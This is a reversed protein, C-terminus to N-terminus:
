TRGCTNVGSVRSSSSDARPRRMPGSATALSADDDVIAATNEGNAENESDSEEEEDDEEDDATGDDDARDDDVEDDDDDEGEASALVLSEASLARMSTMSDSASMLEFVSSSIYANDICTSGRTVLSMCACPRSLAMCFM